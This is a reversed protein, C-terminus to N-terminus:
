PAPALVQGVLQESLTGRDLTVHGDVIVWNIGEAFQHPAEFTARDRITTPDFVVVDAFHGEALEGRRDLRLKRAPKGTMKHIAEELRLLQRERVYRGLVRPFTGYCRPHPHGGGTPGGPTTSWGDSGIISEPRPLLFDVDEDAMVFNVMMTRNEDALIVDLFLEGADQGVRRAAETVSLGQTWRHRDAHVYALRIDQWDFRFFNNWGPAGHAVDHLIKSRLTPDRLRDLMASPGGEHAWPPLLQSLNASGATYPYIDYTLDYTRSADEIMGYTIRVKGWNDRGAAKHHSIQVPLAAERGVRLSERVSDIVTGAEGRMHTAYIGRRSAVVRAVDILEETECYVGPPYVLGASMGFAGAEMAEAAYGRMATLEDPTPRRNAFGM